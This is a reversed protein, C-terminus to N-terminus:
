FPKNFGLYAAALAAILSLGFVVSSCKAFFFANYLQVKPNQHHGYRSPCAMSHLNVYACQLLARHLACRQ